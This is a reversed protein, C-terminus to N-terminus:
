QKVTKKKKKQWNPDEWPKPIVAKIPVISISFHGFESTSFKNVVSISFEKQEYLVSSVTWIKDSVRGVIESRLEFVLAGVIV